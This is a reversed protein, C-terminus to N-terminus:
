KKAIATPASVAPLATKFANYLRYTNALDVIYFTDDLNENQVPLILAYMPLTPVVCPQRSHLCSADPEYLITWM